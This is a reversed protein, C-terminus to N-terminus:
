HPVGTDGGGASVGSHVHTKLSVGDATVDGSVTVSGEITVDARITIGGPAEIEATGGDPLIASLVHALPDYSILAGDEFELLETLDAGAAPFANQVIGPLAVAAAIQGDPVLLVVQEGVSPPSWVRTKGARLMLWRIPPTEAGGGEDDPDGYRVICRAAELDVSAITGLRILESLDAPIDEQPPPMATDPATTAM